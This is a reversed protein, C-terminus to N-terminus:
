WNLWAPIMTQVYPYVYPAAVILGGILISHFWTEALGAGAMGTSKIARSVGHIKIAALLGAIARLIHVNNLVAVGSLQSAVFQTNMSVFVFLVSLVLAHIMHGFRHSPVTVDRHIVLAEYIGIVLGLAISPGLIFAAAM